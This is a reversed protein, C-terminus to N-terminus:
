RSWGSANKHEKKEGEPKEGSPMILEEEGEESVLLQEGGSPALNMPDVIPIYDSILSAPPQPSLCIVTLSRCVCVCVCM